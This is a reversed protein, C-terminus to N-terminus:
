QKEELENIAKQIAQNLLYCRICIDWYEAGYTYGDSIIAEENGMLKNVEIILDWNHCLNEEAKYIDMTYSGSANGTVNDNLWLDEELKDCWDEKNTLAEEIEIKSYNDYIYKKVDEKVAELYDYKEM